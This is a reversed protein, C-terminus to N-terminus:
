TFTSSGHDACRESRTCPTTDAGLSTPWPKWSRGSTGRVGPVSGRDPGPWNKQGSSGGGEAVGRTGGTTTRGPVSCVWGSLRWEAEAALGLTSSTPSATYPTSGSGATPVDAYKKYILLGGEGGGRVMEIYNV